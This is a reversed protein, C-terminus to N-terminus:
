RSRQFYRRQQRRPPPSTVASCVAACWRISVSGGSANSADVIYTFEDGGTPSTIPNATGSTKLGAGASSGIAFGQATSSATKRLLLTCNTVNLNNANLYAGCEKVILPLVTEFEVNAETGNVLCRGGLPLYTTTGANVTAGGSNVLLFQSFGNKVQSSVVEITINGNPTVLFTNTEQQYCFDDGATITDTHTTDEVLAAVGSLMTVTQNGNAGNKRTRYVTDTDRANASARVAFNSSTCDMRVRLQRESESTHHSDNFGGPTLYSIQGDATTSVSGRSALFTICDTNSPAFNLRMVQFTISGSSAGTSNCVVSVVDTNAFTDTSSTDEFWGTSSASISIANNGTAGSKRLRVTCAGNLTNASVYVALRSFDGATRVPIEVNAETTGLLFIGAIATYRILGSNM